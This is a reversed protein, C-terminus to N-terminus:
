FYMDVERPLFVYRKVLGQIRLVMKSLQKEVEAHRTVGELLMGYHLIMHPSCPSCEVWPVHHPMLTDIEEEQATPRGTAIVIVDDTGLFIGSKTQGWNSVIRHCKPLIADGTEGCFIFTNPICESESQRFDSEVRCMGLIEGGLPQKFITFAELETRTSFPTDQSRIMSVTVALRENPDEHNPNAIIRTQLSRTHITARIVIKTQLMRYLTEGTLFTSM